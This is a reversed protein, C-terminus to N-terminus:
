AAGRARRERAKERACARCYRIGRKDRWTNVEDYPHGRPCHTKIRMNWGQTGRAINEQVTVPELHAPNICPPRRCLHDLTLGEPIPGVLVEYALRHTTWLRGYVRIRGYNKPEPNRYGTWLWCGDDTIEIQSLLRDKLAPAGLLRGRHFVATLRSASLGVARLTRM